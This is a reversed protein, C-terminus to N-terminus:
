NPDTLHSPPLTFIVEPLDHAITNM